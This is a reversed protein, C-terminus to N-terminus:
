DTAQRANADRELRDATYHTAEWSALKTFGVDNALIANIQAKFMGKGVEHPYRREMSAFRKAFGENYKPDIILHKLLYDRYERWDKFMFPLEYVFYDDRGMKVAADLGSIRQTARQYTEPEVEQLMFLAHVATEHFYNSVRMKRVPVGHQYMTNYYTNYKWGHDNIAKWVDIYTWDYIPCFNYVGLKPNIQNGWTIGKYTADKTLAIFRTPSEETRVGTLIATPQDGFTQEAFAEMLKQFRDTGYTNEKISIPDKERVWEEGEGWCMLWQDTASTANQLRFPIQLWYPEVEDMYFIDRMYDVTSQFECEQDLWMVKLPLRDKERAVQLCLEFVVASDKGGSMSVVVQPFEDFMYRIRELAADYVNQDKYIKM